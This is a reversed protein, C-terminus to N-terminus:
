SWNNNVTILEDVIIPRSTNSIINAKNKIVLYVECLKSDATHTTSNCNACRM